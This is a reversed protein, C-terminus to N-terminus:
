LLRQLKEISFKLLVLLTKHYESLILVGGRRSLPSFQLPRVPHAVLRVDPLARKIEILARPMHYTATVLRLTKISNKQAWNATEQANGVTDTAQFGITVCCPFDNLSLHSEIILRRLNTSPHVGSILLERAQGAHLIELGTRVRDAGGTLVVVGDTKFNPQIPSMALITILFSLAGLAWLVTLGIAGLVPTLFVYRWFRFSLQTM